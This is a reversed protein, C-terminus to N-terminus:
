LILSEVLKDGRDFKQSRGGGSGWGERRERGAWMVRGGEELSRTVVGCGAEGGTGRGRECEPTFVFEGLRVQRM